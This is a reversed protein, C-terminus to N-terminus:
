IYVNSVQMFASLIVFYDNMLFYIKFISVM